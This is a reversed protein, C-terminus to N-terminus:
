NGSSVSTSELNEQYRLIVRLLESIALQGAVVQREGVEFIAHFQQLEILRQVQEDCLYGLGIAIEGFLRSDDEQVDLIRDIQDLDLLGLRLALAGITNGTGAWDSRLREPPTCSLQEFLYQEFEATVQMDRSESTPMLHDDTRNPRTAFTYVLTRAFRVARNRLGGEIRLKREGPWLRTRERMKLIGSGLGSGSQTRDRSTGSQRNM